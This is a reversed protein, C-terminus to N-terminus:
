LPAAEEEEEDEEQPKVRHRLQLREVRHGTSLALCCSCRSPRLSRKVEPEERTAQEQGGAGVPTEM